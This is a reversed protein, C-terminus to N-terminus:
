HEKKSNESFQSVQNLSFAIDPRSSLMLYMLSGIAEKFPVRIIETSNDQNKSLRLGPDAPLSKPHWHDMHFRRLIKTTYEPQSVYLTRNVRVRSISLWFFFEATIFTNLLTHQHLHHNWNSHRWQQQLNIRTRNLNRTFINLLIPHCHGRFFLDDRLPRPTPEPTPVSARFVLFKLTSKSLFANM